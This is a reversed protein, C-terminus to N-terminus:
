DRRSERVAVMKRLGLKRRGVDGRVEDNWRGIEM